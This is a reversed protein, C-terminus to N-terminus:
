QVLHVLEEKHETRVANAGARRKWDRWPLSYVSTCCAFLVFACVRCQWNNFDDICCSRKSSTGSTALYLPRGQLIPLHRTCCIDRETFGKFEFFHLQMKSRMNELPAYMIYFRVQRSLGLSFLFVGFGKRRQPDFGAAIIWNGSLSNLYVNLSGFHTSRSSFTSCKTNSCM